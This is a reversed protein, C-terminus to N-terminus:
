EGMDKINNVDEEMSKKYDFVERKTKEIFENVVKGPKQKTETSSPSIGTTNFDTVM